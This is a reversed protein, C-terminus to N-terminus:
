QFLLLTMIGGAGVSLVLITGFVFFMLPCNKKDDVKTERTAGVNCFFEM